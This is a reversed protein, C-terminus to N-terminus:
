SPPKRAMGIVIAAALLVVKKMTIKKLTKTLNKIKQRLTEKKSKNEM